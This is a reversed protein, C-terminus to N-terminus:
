HRGCPRDQEASKKDGGSAGFKTSDERQFLWLFGLFPVQKFIHKHVYDM